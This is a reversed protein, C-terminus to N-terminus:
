GKHAGRRNGPIRKDAGDEEVKREKYEAWLEGAAAIDQQQRKKTGGALLIVIRDGDKGFYMRYGPGFNLHSEFVGSGVGKVTSFNGQELRIVSAEVRAATVADLGLFWDGFVNRGRKDIYQRVEVM